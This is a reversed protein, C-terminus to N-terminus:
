LYICRQQILLMWELKITYVVTSHFNVKIVDNMHKNCCHCTQTLILLVITKHSRVNTRKSVFRELCVTASASVVLTVVYM